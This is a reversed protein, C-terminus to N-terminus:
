KVLSWFVKPRGKKNNNKRSRKKVLGKEKLEILNDYCTTRAIGTKKIIEKRTLGKDKKL